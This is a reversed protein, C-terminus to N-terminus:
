YVNRPLKNQQQQELLSHSQNRLEGKQSKENSMYLLSLSKQTNMKYGSFKNFETILELLKKTM